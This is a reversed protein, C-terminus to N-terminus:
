RLSSTNYGSDRFRKVFTDEGPDMADSLTRVGTIHSSKGTLISARSPTCIANNCFCANLRAGEQALRDINPTRFIEALRTNYGSIAKTAHHDAM